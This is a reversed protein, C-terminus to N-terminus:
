RITEPAERWTIYTPLNNIYVHSNSSQLTGNLSYVALPSDNFIIGRINEGISWIVWIYQDPDHFVYGDNEQALEQPLEYSASAHELSACLFQYAEMALNPHLEPDVLGSGRWGRLDYWINATLGMSRAAVYSQILYSAKTTLFSEERCEPENGDRGCILANETNLLLKSGYGFAALLGKLYRTKAIVVPGGNDWSSHWNYNGYWGTEGLYYDYAHFSVGDFSDGGNNALVGELFRAPTCDKYLGSGPSTEPPIVPDCDLLLGGVLIVSDPDAAKMLSYVAKLMDAYYGGGYFLSDDNDGWCGFPSDPSVWEPDVDPENWLEWTHVNFPPQSYRLVAEVMFDAFAQLKEPAVPGCDVGPIKQAWDPTDRVVLIPRMRAASIAELEEDLASMAEWTRQGQAEEVEGWLLANVRVWTVGIQRILELDDVGQIEIGAIPDVIPAPMLTGPPTPVSVSTLTSIPLPLAAFATATAITHPTQSPSFPVTETSPLRTCGCILFWIWIM